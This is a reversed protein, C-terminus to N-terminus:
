GITIVGDAKGKAVPTLELRFPQDEDTKGSLGTGVPAVKFNAATLKDKFWERVTTAAAPSTFTVRVRGDQKTGPRDKADINLGGITSGPYLHVGNMEFDSADLQLKPIKVKGKFFPTDVTAEGNGDLSGTADGDSSNISISTGHKGGDCASLALLTMACILPRSM